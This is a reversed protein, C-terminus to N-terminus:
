KILIFVQEGILANLSPACSEMRNKLYEQLNKRYESLSAVRNSFLQINELDMSSIEMGM